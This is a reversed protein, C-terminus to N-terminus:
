RDLRGGSVVSFCSAPAILARQIQSCRARLMTKNSSGNRRNDAGAAAKSGLHDDPEASLVRESLARKLEEISGDKAFLEEPGRDALLQDLLEKDIAM